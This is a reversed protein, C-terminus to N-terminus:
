GSDHGSFFSMGDVLNWWGELARELKGAKAHAAEDQGGVKVNHRIPQGSLLHVALSMVTAPDNTVASEYGDEQNEDYLTELRIWENIRDNRPQWYSALVTAKKLIEESTVM